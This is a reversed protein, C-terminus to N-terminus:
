HGRRLRTQLFDVARDFIAAIAPDKSMRSDFGHPGGPVRILEHEVRSRTLEAAMQESQSLPIETDADDHLLLTPPYDRTVNRAPCYPDFARPQGPDSGAVLLPWLGQQRSYLYFRGRQNQPPPVAIPTTGVAAFADEKSVAPQKLYFPDPKSYWDAIIDGYGYYAVLAKPRPKLRYGCTLTLYGGASHGVVAIREPDIKFAEPGKTRLWRWADDLDSLIAPLKTELALRYDISVVVFGANLYRQLQEARLNGRHGSILAGGHIWLIAPRIDNGEARYVDAEINLSDITKYTHTSKSHAAGAASAQFILAALALFVVDSSEIVGTQRVMPKGQLRAAAPFLAAGM